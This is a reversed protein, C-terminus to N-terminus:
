AGHWVSYVSENALVAELADFLVDGWRRVGESTSILDQRVEIGVHAFGAEEAHHDVTFDAAAKGSYPENDGTEIGAARLHEILPVPIRPDKDWLIGIEWPRAKSGFVPTFSHLSVLAPIQGLGKLRALERAIAQHYPLYTSRVRAEKEEATLDRNGPIVVGDSVPPFCTSDNLTRNNDVFLRSYTAQVTTAQMRAALLAGLDRTGIDFAVHLDLVRDSVGLQDHSRPIARGAHDCVLLVPRECDPNLVVFPAPDEAALLTGHWHGEGLAAAATHSPDLHGARLAKLSDTLSM